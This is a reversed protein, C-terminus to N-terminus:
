RSRLARDLDEKLRRKTKGHQHYDEGFFANKELVNAQCSGTSMSINGKKHILSLINDDLIHVAIQLNGGM